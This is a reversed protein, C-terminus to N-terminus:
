RFHSTLHELSIFSERCVHSIQKWRFLFNASVNAFRRSIISDSSGMSDLLECYTKRSASTVLHISISKAEECHWVGRNKKWVCRSCGTTLFHRHILPKLKREYYRRLKTSKSITALRLIVPMELTPWGQFNHACAWFLGSISILHIPPKWEGVSIPM